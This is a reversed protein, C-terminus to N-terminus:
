PRLLDRQVQELQKGLRELESRTKELLDEGEPAPLEGQELHGVKVQLRRSETALMDTVQRKFQDSLEPLDPEARSWPEEMARLASVARGLDKTREVLETRLQETLRSLRLTLLKYAVILSGLAWFMVVGFMRNILGVYEPVLPPSLDYGVFLLITAAAAVVFPAYLHSAWYTLGLPIAYLLWPTFGLAMRADVLFIAGLLLGISPYFWTEQTNM